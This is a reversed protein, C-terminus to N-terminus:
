RGRSKKILDPLYNGAQNGTYTGPLETTWPDGAASAANLKYGATGNTLHDTIPENWVADAIDLSTVGSSGASSVQADLYKGFTGATTHGSQSEDWIADVGAASLAYGTKDSVTGATVAGGATIAMSSFNTPFTQSLSYGTKDSNTTVTGGTITRTGVGWVDSASHSSRSSVSANLYTGLIYGAKGSSYSGPLSVNWPDSAAAWSGIIYGATGAGYSGPLATVWPDGAAGAGKLYTGALGATSYGSIDKDWIGTIGTSSLAYGTKDNNTGVTVAGTVSGVSGSLNGTFNVTTTANNGAIFVGGTAGATASPLYDTKTKIAGSDSKIAAVDASVSAGAPAGLRAYADGTMAAAASGKWNVVNVGIQASSTDVTTGAIKTVNVAQDAALSFGAKDTLARSTTGWVKDAATQDFESSTIAAAAIASADIAGAAFKANTIAGTNIANATVVNNALGNVTGVFDVTGSTVNITGGDDTTALNHPNGVTTNFLLTQTMAGTTSSKVQVIEYDNNMEAAELTLVYQGTSGIEIAENTCDSFSTTGTSDSFVAIESDLGAAGTILTGDNKVIPFAVRTKVNKQRVIEAFAQSGVFCFILFLIFTKKM